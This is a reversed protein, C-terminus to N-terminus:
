FVYLNMSNLEVICQLVLLFVTRCYMAVSFSFLYQKLICSLVLCVEEHKFYANVAINTMLWMVALGNFHLVATYYIVGM